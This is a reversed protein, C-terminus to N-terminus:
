PLNNRLPMSTKLLYFRKFKLIRKISVQCSNTHLSKNQYSFFPDKKNDSIKRKHSTSKKDKSKQTSM